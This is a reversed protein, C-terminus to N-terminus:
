RQSRAYNKCVVCRSMSTLMEALNNQFGRFFSLTVLRVSFHLSLSASLEIVIHWGGLAYFINVIKVGKM